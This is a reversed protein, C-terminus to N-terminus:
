ACPLEARVVTPGGPPSDVQLRGDLAAVRRALGTLGGGAPDAGGTGDDRVTVTVAGATCGVLVAIASAGSHKVANTVAERVVFYVATEVARGLPAAVDYELRLPLASREAVAELAAPLGHEDLMTPYIRWAVERLEELARQAEDHAQRLLEDAKEPARARRSRGLLLGLAVLRQQVGDHLDREIRRREEDVAAVTAARSAALASIRQEFRDRRTPGLLNRALWREASLVGALGQLGAFLLVLGVVTFYAIIWAAPAIGDPEEGRAWGWVVRVATGAGLALLFLVAGGLLGVVWRVALFRVARGPPYDVSVGIRRLALDTLARAPRTAIGLSAPLVVLMELPVTAAGVGVGFATRAWRRAIGM